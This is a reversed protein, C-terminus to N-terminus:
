RIFRIEPCRSLAGDFLQTARDRLHLDFFARVHTRTATVVKGPATSGLREPDPLLLPECDTFSLTTTGVLQLDRRWGRHRAWFSEAAPDTLHTRNADESGFLLVPRDLDHGPMPPLFEGDLVVGARLRNDRYMAEAVTGGGAGHGFAGLRNLDLVAGLGPPLQGDGPMRGEALSALKALVTRVDEVRAPIRARDARRETIRGAPFDVATEYTHDITVVVYGHSALDEALTTCLDRPLGFDPSFLLVPRKEGRLVAAGEETHLGVGTFDCGEVSAAAGQRLYLAPRGGGDSPYWLSVMLERYPQEPVWPDPRSWDVLRLTVRGAAHRGSPRPLTRALAKTM